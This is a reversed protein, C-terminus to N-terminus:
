PGSPRAKAGERGETGRPAPSCAAVRVRRRPHPESGCQAHGATRRCLRHNGAARPARRGNTITGSGPPAPAHPAAGRHRHRPGGVWPRGPRHSRRKGAGQLPKSVSLSLSLPVPRNRVRRVTRRHPVSGARPAPVHSQSAAASLSSPAIALLKDMVKMRVKVRDTM